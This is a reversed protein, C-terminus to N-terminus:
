KAPKPLEVDVVDGAGMAIRQFRRKQAESPGHPGNPQKAQRQLRECTWGSCLEGLRKGSDTWALEEAFTAIESMPPVVNIQELLEWIKGAEQKTPTEGAIMRRVIHAVQKQIM